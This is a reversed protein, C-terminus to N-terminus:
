AVADIQAMLKATEVLAVIIQQYHRIEDATLARDKRDKLYKQAPQYGGIYFDWTTQPVDGFYQTKNIRVKGDDFKVATVTNDGPEPYTTILTNLKASEM